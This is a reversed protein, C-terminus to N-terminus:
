KLKLPDFGNKRWDDLKAYFDNVTLGFTKNFAQRWDATRNAKWYRALVEQGYPTVLMETAMFGLFYCDNISASELTAPVLMARQAIERRDAVYLRKGIKNLVYATEYTASGEILWCPNTLLSSGAQSMQVQHYYEHIAAEYTKVEDLGALVFANIYIKGHSAAGLYVGSLNYPFKSPNYYVEVEVEGADGFEQKAIEFAQQILAQRSSPTENDFNIKVTAPLLIPSPLPTPQPIPAGSCSTVAFLLGLTILISKM